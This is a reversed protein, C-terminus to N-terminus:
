VDPCLSNKRTTLRTQPDKPRHRTDLSKGIIKQRRRDSLHFYCIVGSCVATDRQVDTYSPRPIFSPSLLRTRRCLSRPAAAAPSRSVRSALLTRYLLSVLRLFLPLLTQSSTSFAPCLPSLPCSLYGLSYNPKSCKPNAPDLLCTSGRTRLRLHLRTPLLVRSVFSDLFCLLCRAYLVSFFFFIMHFLLGYSTSNRSDLGGLDWCGQFRRTRSLCCCPRDFPPQERHTEGLSFFHVVYTPSSFERSVSVPTGTPWLKWLFPLITRRLTSVSEGRNSLLSQERTELRTWAFTECLSSGRRKGRDTYERRM